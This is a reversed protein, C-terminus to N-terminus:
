VISCSGGDGAAVPGLLAALVEQLLQHRLVTGHHGAHRGGSRETLVLHATIPRSWATSVGSQNGPRCRRPTCWCCGRGRRPPPPIRCRSRRPSSARSPPAACACHAYRVELKHRSALVGPPRAPPLLAVDPHLSSHAHAADAAGDDM